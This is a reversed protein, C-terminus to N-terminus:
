KQTRVTQPQKPDDGKEEKPKEIGFLSDFVDRLKKTIQESMLGVLAGIGAVAFDDVASPGGSVFGARVVLYTIVAMAAGIFPRSFYWWEWGKTLKQRSIWSTLSSVAHTSAGILGFLAAVIVLRIEKNTFMLIPEYIFAHNPIPTYSINQFREKEIKKSPDSYIITTTNVIKTTQNTINTVATQRLSGNVINKSSPNTINQPPM